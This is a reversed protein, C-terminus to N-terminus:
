VILRVANRCRTWDLITSCDGTMPYPRALFRISNQLTQDTNFELFLHYPCVYIIKGHKSSFDLSNQISKSFM